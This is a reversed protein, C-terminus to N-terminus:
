TEILQLIDNKLEEYDGVMVLNDYHAEDGPFFQMILYDGDAGGPIIGSLCFGCEKAAFYGAECGPDKLAFVLEIMENKIRICNQITNKLTLDIDNGVEKVIIKTMKLQPINDTSFVTEAATKRENRIEYKWGLRDYIKTIFPILEKPPCLSTTANPDLIRVGVCLDLRTHERNYESEIDSGLYSMLLSTATFGARIFAKQSMPHFGVPQGMLARFNHQKGIEICHDMFRAFLGLGRFGSRTVVTSIEPMDKYLDNFSLAFHGATQGHDNVALFSMLSGNRIMEMFSDIHYLREYSYSYGYESYICRIAEVADEETLVPRITINTDLVEEEAYPEPKKFEIKHLINLRLYIRQGDKGLKEMGVIDAFTDIIYNEMGRATHLENKDYSLNQWGPVGMDKISVEFFQDTLFLEVTIMGKKGPYAREIRRNLAEEVVLRFRQYRSVELSTHQIALTDIFSLTPMLYFTDNYIELSALKRKSM